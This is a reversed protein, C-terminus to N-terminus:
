ATTTVEFAGMVPVEIGAPSATASTLLALQAQAAELAKRAQRLDARLDCVAFFQQEPGDADLTRELVRQSAAESVGLTYLTEVLALELTEVLSAMTPQPRKLM